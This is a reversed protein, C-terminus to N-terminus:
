DLNAPPQAKIFPRRVWIGWRFESIAADDLTGPLVLYRVNLLRLVNSGSLFNEPFGSGRMGILERYRGLDNPHHGTALELGFMAPRVEQADDLAAVRFPGEDRQRELIFSLGEDPTAWERFHRGYLHAVGHM